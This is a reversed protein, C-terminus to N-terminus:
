ITLSKYTLIVDHYTFSKHGRLDLKPIHLLDWIYFVYHYIFAKHGQLGLRPIHTPNEFTHPHFITWSVMSPRVLWAPSAESSPSCVLRLHWITWGQRPFIYFSSIHKKKTPSIYLIIFYTPSFADLIHSQIMFSM